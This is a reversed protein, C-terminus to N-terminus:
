ETGHLGREPPSCLLSASPRLIPSCRLRANPRLTPSLVLSRCKATSIFLFLPFFPGDSALKIAKYVISLQLVNCSLLVLGLVNGLIRRFALPQIMSFGFDQPLLGWGRGLESVFMFDIPLKRVVPLCDERQCQLNQQGQIGRVM